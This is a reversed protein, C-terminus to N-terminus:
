RGLQPPGKVGSFSNTKSKPSLHRSTLLRGGQNPEIVEAAMPDGNLPPGGRQVLLKGTLTLKIIWMISIGNLDDLSIFYNSMYWSVIRSNKCVNQESSAHGVIFM